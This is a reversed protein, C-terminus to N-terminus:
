KILQLQASIVKAIRDFDSRPNAQPDGHNFGVHQGDGKFRPAIHLHSHGVEQGAVAGDSLFINAGECQVSSAQIASLILQAIEFLAGVTAKNIDCFREYHQNPVILVHGPNIPHIDLFASVLESRYVFSAPLDGKLIKCFICTKMYHSYVFLQRSTM